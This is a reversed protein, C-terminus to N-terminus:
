ALIEHVLADKTHVKKYDTDVTWNPSMIFTAFPSVRLHTISTRLQPAYLINTISQSSTDIHNFDLFDEGYYFFM